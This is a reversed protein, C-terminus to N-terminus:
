AAKRDTLAKRVGDLVEAREATSDRYDKATGTWGWEDLFVAADQVSNIRVLDGLGKDEFPSPCSCGSDAVLFLAGDELRKVLLVTDFEYRGGADAEVLIELGFKEPEYAINM